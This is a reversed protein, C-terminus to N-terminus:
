KHKEKGHIRESLTHLVELGEQLQRLERASLQQLHLSINKQGRRRIRLFEKRGASTLRVCVYRRDQHLESKELLGREVMAQVMKSMAARSVGHHEAVESMCTMGNYINALIRFQPVTLDPSAVQRMQQRLIKMARPITHIFEKAIQDSDM